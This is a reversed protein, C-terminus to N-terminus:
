PPLPGRAAPSRRSMEVRRCRALRLSEVELCAAWRDWDSGCRRPRCGTPGPVCAQRESVLVIYQRKSLSALFRGDTVTTAFFGQNKLGDNVQEFLNTGAPAPAAPVPAVGAAPTVLTGTAKTTTSVGM